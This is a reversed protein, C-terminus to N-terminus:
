KKSFIKEAFETIPGRLVKKLEVAYLNVENHVEKTANLLTTLGNTNKNVYVNDIQLNSGLIIIKSTNDVRSLILQMTKKSINQAEDIIVISESITRGRMEGVWMTEINHREIAKEVNMSVEEEKIEANKSKGSTNNNSKKIEQRVIYELSDYLPYNYIEFKSELGPLYGVDEGKDLSEISNRVYLIKNYKKKRVLKMAGSLSLLTKGSGALAATLVININESFIAQSLFLQEINRPNIAQNRMEVEDIGYIKEKIVLALVKAGCPFNFIYNFNEPTHEPDLERIFIGNFLEKNTYGNAKLTILKELTVSIEKVFKLDNDEIKIGRLAETNLGMSIARTRAMIDMSVFSFNEADKEYFSQADKAVELIKRDNSINREIKEQSVIYRDKSIIDIIVKNKSNSEEIECRVIKLPSEEEEYKKTIKADELFRAFQRAQFNIEEFGSKKVILKM